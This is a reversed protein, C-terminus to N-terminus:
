LPFFGLPFGKQGHAPFFRALMFRLMQGRLPFGPLRLMGTLPM